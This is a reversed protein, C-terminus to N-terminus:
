DRLCRVSSGHGLVNFFRNVSDFDEVIFRQWVMNTTAQSSSWWAGYGGIVDFVGNPDRFGGPLGNFGSENTGNGNNKWSSTSKLKNGAVEVGGLANTLVTWEDDSPIHWGEPALGRPDNVAFWNYLKGYDQGHIPDDQIRRNEYYCWASKREKAATAWEEATRAEPIADGNRFHSVDLNKSMWVQEGINVSPIDNLVAQQVFVTSTDDVVTTTESSFKRTEEPQGMQQLAELFAECSSFRAEPDKQTARQILTDWPTETMPLPEQVIKTQLQFTNLTQTHYPKSGTVMQWLVVGLSYIDSAITVSKTETIQEPSMYMPTGMTVGTGTQTYEASSADTNKAIGFDMLKVKGQANLMFNSPKIDRHILQEGHVYALAELMQALLVTIEQNVLKGTDRIHESLNKGSVYEMSFAVMEGEELLDTVRVIHSHSLRFLNRAEALFRKRLSSNEVFEKNLVKLAVPLQFKLDEAKYVKAMGGQGILSLIHYNGITTGIM